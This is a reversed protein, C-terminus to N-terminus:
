HNPPMTDAELGEPPEDPGPAYGQGGPIGGNLGPHHGEVMSGDDAPPPPQPMTVIGHISGEPPGTIGALLMQMGQLIQAAHETEPGMPSVQVFAQLNQMSQHLLVQRMDPMGQQPMMGGMGGMPPMGPMGGPPPMGPQGPPMGGMPPQGPMPMGPPMGPHPMMGPQGMPMGPPGPMGPMGPPHMGPMGPAGPMMGPPGQPHQQMAAAIAAMMPNPSQQMGQM